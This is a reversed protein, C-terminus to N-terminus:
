SIHQSKSKLKFKCNSKTDSQNTQVKTPAKRGISSISRHLGDSSPKIMAGRDFTNKKEGQQPFSNSAFNFNVAGANSM